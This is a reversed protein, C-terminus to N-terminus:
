AVCFYNIRVFCHWWSEEREARGISINTVHIINGNVVIDQNLFSTYLQDIITLNAATGKNIPTFVDIQYIGVHRQKVGLDDITSNSPLWTPRLFPVGRSPEKDINPYYVIPILPISALKSNFGNQIDNFIGM